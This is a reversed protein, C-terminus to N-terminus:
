GSTAASASSDPRSSASSSPWSPSTAPRSWSACGRRSGRASGACSACGAPRCSTPSRSRRRASRRPRAGTRARCTRTRRPWSSCRRSRRSATPSTPTTWRRLTGGQQRPRRRVAVAAPYPPPPAARGPRGHRRQTAIRPSPAPDARAPRSRGHRREDSNPRLRVCRNLGAVTREESERGSTSTRRSRRPPAPPATTDPGPPGRCNIRCGSLRLWVFSWSGCPENSAKVFSRGYPRIGAGHGRTSGAREFRQAAQVPQAHDVREAVLPQDRAGLDGAPGARDRRGDRAQDGVQLGVAEHDLARLEALRVPGLAAPRRDQEREVRRGAGGDADVEAVAVQADRDRVEARADEGLPRHREVGVVRGLFPEVRRGVEDTSSSASAPM